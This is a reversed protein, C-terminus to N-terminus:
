LCRGLSESLHVCVCLRHDARYYGHGPRLLHGNKGSSNQISVLVMVAALVLVFVPHNLVTLKGATEPVSSTFLTVTLAAGTLIGMISKVGYEYSQPIRMLGWSAWGENQQIQERLDHTQQKDMDAYDMSFMKHCFLIEKRGYLEDYLTENRQYLFAKLIACLGTCIVGAAVWLWLVDARRLLALEKLIQASFFVAVYPTIAAVVSYLTCVGFYKPNVSHLAKAGRHHLKLVKRMTVKEEAM